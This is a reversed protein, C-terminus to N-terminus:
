HRDYYNYNAIFPIIKDTLAPPFQTNKRQLIIERAQEPSYKKRYPRDTVLGDYMDVISLIAAEDPIESGKLGKPYGSGNFWEHHYRVNPLSEKLFDIPELIKFGTEPHKKIDSFEEESLQGPKTLIKDSIGIKGIDHLLAGYRLADIKSKKFGLKKAIFAILSSVRKSHGATYSDKADIALLLAETTSFFNQKVERRLTFIIHNKGKHTEYYELARKVVSHIESYHFPKIIYDFAGDRLATIATQSSPYATIIIVPLHPYLLKFEKLLNLGNVRPMKIDLFVIDIHEEELYKTAEKPTSATYVAHPNTLIIRLSERIGLEDDIILINASKVTQIMKYLTGWNSIFLLLL